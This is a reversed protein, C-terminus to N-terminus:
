IRRSIKELIIAGDRRIKDLEIESNQKAKFSEPNGSPLNTKFLNKVQKLYDVIRKWFL